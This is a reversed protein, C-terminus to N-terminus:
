LCGGVGRDVRRRRRSARCGATAAGGGQTAKSKLTMDALAAAAKTMFEQKNMVGPKSNQTDWKAVMDEISLGKESSDSKLKSQVKDGLKADDHRLARHATLADVLGAGGPHCLGGRITDQLM